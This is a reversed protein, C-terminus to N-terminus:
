GGIDVVPGAHCVGAECVVADELGLAQATVKGLVLLAVQRM